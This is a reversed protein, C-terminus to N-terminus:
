CACVLGRKVQIDSEDNFVLSSLNRMVQRNPIFLLSPQSFSSNDFSFHVNQESALINTTSNERNSAIISSVISELMPAYRYSTCSFNGRGLDASTCNAFTTNGSPSDASLLVQFQELLKYDTDVWRIM